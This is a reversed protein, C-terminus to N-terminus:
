RNVFISNKRHLVLGFQLYIEKSVSEQDVFQILTAMLSKPLHDLVRSKLTKPDYYRGHKQRYDFTSCLIEGKDYIELEQDSVVTPDFFVKHETDLYLPLILCAGQDSLVRDAEIMFESDADGHFHEFSCHLTMADFFGNPVDVMKQAFGAIIKKELDTQFEADQKWYEVKPFLKKAVVGIPSASAAVDCYRKVKSFDLLDFSVSHELAKERGHGIHKYLDGFQDWYNQGSYKPDAFSVQIIKNGNQDKLAKQIEFRSNDPQVGPRFQIRTGYRAQLIKHRRQFRYTYLSSRAKKVAPRLINKVLEKIGM